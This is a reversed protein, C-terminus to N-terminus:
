SSLLEKYFECLNEQLLHLPSNLIKNCIDITNEIDDVSEAVIANARDKAELTYTTNDVIATAKDLDTLYKIKEDLMILIEVYARKASSSFTEKISTDVNSFELVISKLRDISTRNWDEVNILQQHIIM